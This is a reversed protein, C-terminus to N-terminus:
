RARRVEGDLGAVKEVDDGEDIFVWGKCSM